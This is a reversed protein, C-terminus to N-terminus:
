IEKISAQATIRRQREREREREGPLRTGSPSAFDPTQEIFLVSQNIKLVLWQVTIVADLANFYHL